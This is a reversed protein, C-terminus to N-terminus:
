WYLQVRPQLDWFQEGDGSFEGSFAMVTTARFSVLFPLPVYSFDVISSVYNSLSLFLPLKVTKGNGVAAQEGSVLLVLFFTLFFPATHSVTSSILPNPKQPGVGSSM